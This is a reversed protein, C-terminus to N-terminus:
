AHIHTSPIPISVLPISITNIDGSAAAFIDLQTSVRTIITPYPQDRLWVETPSDSDARAVAGGPTLAQEMVKSVERKRHAPFIIELKRRWAQCAGASSFGSANNMLWM